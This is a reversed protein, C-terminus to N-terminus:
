DSVSKTARFDGAPQPLIPYLAASIPLFGIHVFRNVTQCAAVLGRAIRVQAAFLEESRDDPACRHRARNQRRWPDDIFEQYRGNVGAARGSLVVGSMAIGAARVASAAQAHGRWFLKELKVDRFFRLSSTSDKSPSDPSDNRDKDRCMLQTRCSM